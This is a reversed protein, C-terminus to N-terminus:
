FGKSVSCSDKYKNNVPFMRFIRRFCGLEECRQVFAQNECEGTIWKGSEWSKIMETSMKIILYLKLINKVRNRLFVQWFM